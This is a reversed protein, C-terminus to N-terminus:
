SIVTPTAKEDRSKAAALMMARDFEDCKSAWINAGFTQESVPNQVTTNTQYAVIITQGPSLTNVFQANTGNVGLSALVGEPTGGAVMVTGYSTFLTESQIVTTTPQYGNVIAADSFAQQKTRGRGLTITLINTTDTM